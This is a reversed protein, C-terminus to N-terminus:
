ESSPPPINESADHCVQAEHNLIRLHGNHCLDSCVNQTPELHSKSLIPSGKTCVGLTLTGKEKNQMCGRETQSMIGGNTCDYLLTNPIYTHTVQFRELLTAFNELSTM